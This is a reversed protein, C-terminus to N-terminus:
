GCQRIRFGWEAADPSVGGGSDRRLVLVTVTVSLAIVVLLALGGLLGSGRAGRGPPPGPPGAWQQQPGWPPPGGPGQPGGFGPPPVGPGQPPQGGWPQVGGGYQGGGPAPSRFPGPPPPLTM